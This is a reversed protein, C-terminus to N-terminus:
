VHIAIVKGEDDCIVGNGDTGSKFWCTSNDMYIPQPIDPTYLLLKPLYYESRNVKRLNIAEEIDAIDEATLEVTSSDKLKEMKTELTELTAVEIKSRKEHHLKAGKYTLCIVSFVPIGEGVIERLLRERKETIDSPSAVHDSGANVIWTDTDIVNVAKEDHTTVINIVGKSTIVIDDYRVSKGNDIDELAICHDAHYAACDKEIQIGAEDTDRLWPEIVYSAEREGREKRLIEEAERTYIGDAEMHRIAANDLAIRLQWKDHETFGPAQVDLYRYLASRLVSDSIIENPDQDRLVAALKAALAEDKGTIQYWADWVGLEEAEAKMAEIFNREVERFRRYARANNVKSTFDDNIIADKKDTYEKILKRLERREGDGFIIRTYIAFSHLRRNMMKILTDINTLLEERLNGVDQEYKEYQITGRKINEYRSESYSVNEKQENIADAKWGDITVWPWLIFGIVSFVGRPLTFLMFPIYKGFSWDKKKIRARVFTIWRMHPKGYIKVYFVNYAIFAMVHWGHYVVLILFADWGSTFHVVTDIPILEVVILPLLLTMEIAPLVSGEKYLSLIGVLQGWAYEIVENCFVANFIDCLFTWISTLIAEM